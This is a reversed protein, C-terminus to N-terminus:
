ASERHVEAYARKVAEIDKASLKRGAEIDAQAVKLVTEAHSRNKDRRRNGMVGRMHDRLAGDPFLDTLQLGLSGMVDAAGCGAFCHILIRGDEGETVRLSPSNDEHAPCCAVFGQGQRRVKELRSLLEDISM